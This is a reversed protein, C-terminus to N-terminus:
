CHPVQSRCDLKVRLRVEALKYQPKTPYACTISSCLLVTNFELKRRSIGSKYLGQFPDQFYGKFMKQINECKLCKRYVRVSELVPNRVMLVVSMQILYDKMIHSHLQSPSVVTNIILQASLNWSSPIIQFFIHEPASFLHFRESFLLSSM